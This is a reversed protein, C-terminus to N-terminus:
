GGDATLESHKLFVTIMAVSDLRGVAKIQTGVPLVEVRANWQKDFQLGIVSGDADNLHVMRGDLSPSVNTVTGAVNMWFGLHPQIDRSAALETRDKRLGLLYKPTVTPPLYNRAPAAAGPKKRWHAYGWQVGQSVAVTAAIVVGIIIFLDTWTKPPELKSLAAFFGSLDL